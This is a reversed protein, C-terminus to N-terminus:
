DVDSYRVSFPYGTIAYVENMNQRCKAFCGLARCVDIMYIADSQAPAGAIQASVKAHIDKVADSYLLDLFKQADIELNAVVDILEHYFSVDKSRWLKSKLSDM